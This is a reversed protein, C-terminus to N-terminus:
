KQNEVRLELKNVISNENIDTITQNVSSKHM